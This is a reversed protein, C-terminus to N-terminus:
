RAPYRQLDSELAAAADLIADRALVLDIHEGYIEDPEDAGDLSVFSIHVRIVAADESPYDAVSFAVNPETFTVADRGRQDYTVETVVQPEREAVRSFWEALERLEWTLLCPDIQTWGAADTQGHFKVMLWNADYPDARAAADSFQYGLVTLRFRPSGAIGVLEM